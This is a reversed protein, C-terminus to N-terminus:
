NLNQEPDINDLGSLNFNDIKSSIMDKILKEYLLQYADVSNIDKILRLMYKKLFFKSFPIFKTLQNQQSQFADIFNDNAIIRNLVSNVEHDSYPKISSFKDTM